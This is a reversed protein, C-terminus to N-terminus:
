QCACSHARSTAALLQPRSIANLSRRANKAPAGRCILRLDRRSREPCARRKAQLVAGSLIVDGTTIVDGTPIQVADSGLWTRRHLVMKGPGQAASRPRLLM